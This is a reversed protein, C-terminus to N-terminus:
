IKKVRKGGASRRAQENRRAQKILAGHQGLPTIDAAFRLVKPPTHYKEGKKAM